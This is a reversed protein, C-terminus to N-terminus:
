GESKSKDEQHVFDDFADAANKRFADGEENTYGRFLIEEIEDGNFAYKGDPSGTGLFLDVGTYQWMKKNQDYPYYGIIMLPLRAGKQRIVTGIPLLESM